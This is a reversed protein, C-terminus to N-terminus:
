QGALHQRAKDTWVQLQELLERRSFSCSEEDFLAGSELRNLLDRWVEAFRPPLADLLPRMDTNAAQIFASVAATDQRAAQLAPQLRELATLAPALDM